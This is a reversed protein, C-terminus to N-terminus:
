RLGLRARCYSLSEELVVEPAARADLRLAGDANSIQQAQYMEFHSWVSGTYWHRFRDEPEGAADRLYRRRCCTACDAQLWLTCDFMSSVVNDYFLLSGEAVVVVPEGPALQSNAMGKRVVNGGGRAPEAKIVLSDPVVETSSLAGEILHLDSLFQQFNLTDPVESNLGFEPHRKLRSQLVYGDLPVPVLPSNLRVALQRALTSKGGCSPGSIGIFYVRRSAPDELCTGAETDDAACGDTTEEAAADTTEARGDFTDTTEAEASTRAHPVPGRIVSAQAAHQPPLMDGPGSQRAGMLPLKGARRWRLRWRNRHPAARM